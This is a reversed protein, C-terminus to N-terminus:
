NLIIGQYNYPVLLNGAIMIDIEAIVVAGEEGEEKSLFMNVDGVM